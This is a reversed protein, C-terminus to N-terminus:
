AAERRLLRRSRWEDASLVYEVSEFEGGRALCPHLKVAGTARFGLKRLVAGSNPNDVFHGASVRPYRYAEFALDLAACAAEAALGQGWFARAVWYGLEPDRDEGFWYGFGVSGVLADDGRRFILFGAGKPDPDRAVFQEAHALDYPWPVRSLNRVIDWEAIGAFVARADEAWAPRLYLRDTRMFM